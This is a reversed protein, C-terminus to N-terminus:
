NTVKYTYTMSSNVWELFKLVDSRVIMNQTQNISVITDIKFLNNEHLKNILMVSVFHREGYLTVDLGYITQENLKEAFESLDTNLNASLNLLQKGDTIFKAKLAGSEFKGDFLTSENISWHSLRSSEPSLNFVDLAQLVKKAKQTKLGYSLALNDIIVADWHNEILEFNSLDTCTIAQGNIRESNFIFAILDDIDLSTENCAKIVAVLKPMFLYLEYQDDGHVQIIKRILSELRIVSHFSRSKVFATVFYALELHTPNCKSQNNGFHLYNLLTRLHPLNQRLFMRNMPTLDSVLAEIEYDSHMYTFANLDDENLFLEIIKKQKILDLDYFSKLDSYESIELQKLFNHLDIDVPLLKLFNEILLIKSDKYNDSNWLLFSLTHNALTDKLTEFEVLVTDRNHRIFHCILAFDITMSLTNHNPAIESILVDNMLNNFKTTHRDLNLSLEQDSFVFEPLYDENVWQPQADLSLNFSFTPAKFTQDNHKIILSDGVRIESETVVFIENIHKNIYEAFQLCLPNQTKLYDLTFAPNSLKKM